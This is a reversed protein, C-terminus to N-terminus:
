IFQCPFPTNSFPVAKLWHSQDNIKAKATGKEREGKQRGGRGRVLARWHLKKIATYQPPPICLTLMGLSRATVEGRRNCSRIGWPNVNCLLGAWVWAGQSWRSGRSESTEGWPGLKQILWTGMSWDWAGPVVGGGCRGRKKRMVVFLRTFLWVTASCLASQTRTGTVTHPIGAHQPRQVYSTTDMKLSLM